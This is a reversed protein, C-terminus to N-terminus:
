IIHMKKKTKLDLKRKNEVINEWIKMIKQWTVFNKQWKKRLIADM